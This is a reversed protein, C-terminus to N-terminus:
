WRPRGRRTEVLDLQNKAFHKAWRWCPWVALCDSELSYGLTQPPLFQRQRKEGSLDPIKKAKSIKRYIMATFPIKKNSAFLSSSANYKGNPRVNFICLFYIIKLARSFWTTIAQCERPILYNLDHTVFPTDGWVSM